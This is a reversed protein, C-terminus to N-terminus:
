WDDRARAIEAAPDLGWLGKGSGAMMRLSLGQVLELPVVAAYPKGERTVITIDGHHARDLVASLRGVLEEADCSAYEM